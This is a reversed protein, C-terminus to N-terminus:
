CCLHYGLPAVTAASASGSGAVGLLGTTAFALAIVACRIKSM